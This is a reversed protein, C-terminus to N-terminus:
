LVIRDNRWEEFIVTCAQLFQSLEGLERAGFLCGLAPGCHVHQVTRQLADAAARTREATFAVSYVAAEGGAGDFVPCAHHLTVGEDLAVLDAHDLPHFYRVIAFLQVVRDFHAPGPLLVPVLDIERELLAPRRGRTVRVKPSIAAPFPSGILAIFASLVSTKLGRKVANM